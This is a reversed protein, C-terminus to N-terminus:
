AFYRQQLIEKVVMKRCIVDCPPVSYMSTGYKKILAIVLGGLAM